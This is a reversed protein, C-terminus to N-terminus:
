IKVQLLAVAHLDSNFDVRAGDSYESAYHGAHFSRSIEPPGVEGSHEHRGGQSACVGDDKGHEGVM